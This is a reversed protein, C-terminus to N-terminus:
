DFTIKTGQSPLIADGKGRPVSSLAAGPRINRADGNRKDRRSLRKEIKDPPEQVSTVDLGELGTGSAESEVAAATSKAFRKKYRTSADEAFEMRLPRGHLRNVFWKRPKKAKKLKLREKKIKKSSGEVGEANGSSEEDEGESESESDSEALHVWGRVAAVASEVEDFTVWGYGKCKGSDEFTALFVNDVTGCRSLHERIDDPTVDFALNGIFIRRNPPKDSKSTGKTAGKTEGQIDTTDDKTEPKEPRGEFSKSNKILVNRGEFSTESLDLAVALWEASSFDIYAFGKNAVKAATDAKPTGTDKPAPMHMRTIANDAVGHSSFFNRLDQKTATWPLNGIWISHASRKSNTDAAAITDGTPAPQSSSSSKAKKVKRLAKHSLPEPLSVDIEIEEDEIDNHKRKKSKKLPIRGSSDAPESILANVEEGGKSKRPKKERARLVEPKENSANEVSPKKGKQTNRSTDANEPNKERSTSMKM